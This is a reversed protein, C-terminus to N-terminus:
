AEEKKSAFSLIKSLFSSKKPKDEKQDEDLYEDLLVKISGAIPISIIGGIVGFMYLGITVATLVALPSLDIRKSQIPPAIMNNEIQQYVIFYIAFVIAAPISNFALLLSVIVGAIMAGFMPILSLVFATAITPLALNSPVEPFILSLIFVTTGALLAGIGSVTLQGTVYGSVVGNIRSIIRQHKEKKKGEGYLRWFRDIWVPGEILMLFTLVLVLILAAVVSFISGVGNIINKGFDAALQSSSEKMSEVASDVQPQINYKDILDGVWASRSSLDEVMQPATEVFKGTQQVIPPIVLTVVATLVSVVAIFAIATGLVRSKGPLRAALKNVPGNLALALFLAIGLIILATRASYIILLAFMFGFVVLWFRVFTGTDIDIKVKM